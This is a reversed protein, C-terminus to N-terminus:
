LAIYLGLLPLKLAPLCVMLLDAFTETIAVPLEFSPVAELQRSMVELDRQMGPGEGASKEGAGSRGRGDAAICVISTQGGVSDKAEGFAVLPNLTGGRHTFSHRRLTRCCMVEISDLDWKNNPVMGMVSLRVLGGVYRARVRWRKEVRQEAGVADGGHPEQQQAKRSLHRSRFLALQEDTEDHVRGSDDLRVASEEEGEGNVGVLVLDLEDPIPTLADPPARVAIEYVCYCGEVPADLTLFAKQRFTFGCPFVAARGSRMDIVSIDELLWDVADGTGGVWVTVSRLKGLNELSRIEFFRTSGRPFTQDPYDANYLLERDTCGYEGAISVYAESDCGAGAAASTRVQATPRLAARLM